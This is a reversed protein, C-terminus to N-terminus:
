AANREQNTGPNTTWTRKFMQLPKFISELMRVRVNVQSSGFHKSTGYLRDFDGMQIFIGRFSLLTSRAFLDGRFNEAQDSPQIMSYQSGLQISDCGNSRRSSILDRGEAHAVHRFKFLGGPPGVEDKCLHAHAM